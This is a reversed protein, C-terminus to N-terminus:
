NVLEARLTKAQHALLETASAVIHEVTLGCDRYVDKAPASAGYRDIGIVKGHCGIFKYWGDTAAAEIAIRVNVAPPLVDAQYSADQALFTDTSPMSVVRVRKGSASLQQQADMALAVESGTAILIIEPTENCDALVYAGRLINTL